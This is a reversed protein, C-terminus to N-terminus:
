FLVLILHFVQASAPQRSAPWWRHTQSQTKETSPAYRTVAEESQLARSHSRAEPSAMLIYLPCWLASAQQARFSLATSCQLMHRHTGAQALSRCQRSFLTRTSHLM